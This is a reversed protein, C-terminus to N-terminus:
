FKKMEYGIAYLNTVIYIRWLRVM